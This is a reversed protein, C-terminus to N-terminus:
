PAIREAYPLFLNILAREDAATLDRTDRIRNLVDVVRDGEDQPMELAEAVRLVGRTWEGVALGVMHTELFRVRLDRFANQFQRILQERTM